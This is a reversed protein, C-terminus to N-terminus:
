WVSNYTHLHQQVNNAQEGTQKVCTPRIAPMKTIQITHPLAVPIHELVVHDLCLGLGLGSTKSTSALTLDYQILAV